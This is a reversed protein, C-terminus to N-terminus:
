GTKPLVPEPHRRREIATIVALVALAAMALITHRKWSIYQRVQTQDLGVENKGQQFDEEVTWRIGAIMVLIPLTMPRGEPVHCIFFALETPTSISRRVLLMRRPSDTDVCAWDYLRPGKSGAGCSRREWAASPVRKALDDARYRGAKTAVAFDVGVALVYGIRQEEFFARLHPDRGYVEDGAAWALPPGAELTRAAIRRALQPKTAFTWDHPLRMAARSAPEAAYSRQVYLESDILAHGHRGAYTAYVAVICNTVKGATGTYQRGVGATRTGKKEQGTEDLVLVADSSRLHKVVFSRGADRVADEDWNARSLMRQMKDPSLDGAHRALHWCNKRPVESLLGRLYALATRRPEVRGFAGAIDAALEALKGELLEPEVIISAATEQDHNTV